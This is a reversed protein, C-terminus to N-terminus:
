KKRLIKIRSNKSTQAERQQKQFVKGTDSERPQNNGGKLSSTIYSSYYSLDREAKKEKQIVNSIINEKKGSNIKNKSGVGLAQKKMQKEPCTKKLQDVSSIEYEAERTNSTPVHTYNNARLALEVQLSELSKFQELYVNIYNKGCKQSLLNFSKLTSNMMNIFNSFLENTELQKYLDNKLYSEIVNAPQHDSMGLLDRMKFRRWCRQITIISQLYTNFGSISSFKDNFKIQNFSIEQLQNGILTSIPNSDISKDRNFENFVRIMNILQFPDQISRSLLNCHTKPDKDKSQRSTLSEKEYNKNSSIFSNDKTRLVQCGKNDGKKETSINRSIVKTNMCNSSFGKSSAQQIQSQIKQALSGKMQTFNNSSTKSKETTFPTVKITNLDSNHEFQKDAKSVQSKELLDTKSSTKANVKININSAPSPKLKGKTSTVILDLKKQASINRTKPKNIPVSNANFSNNLNSTTSKITTDKEKDGCKWETTKKRVVINQFPPSNVKKPLDENEENIIEFKDTIKALKSNILDQINEVSNRVINKLDLCDQMTTKRSFSNTFDTSEETKESLHGSKHYSSNDEDTVVRRESKRYQKIRTYKNENDGDEKDSCYM